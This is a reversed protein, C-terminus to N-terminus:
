RPWHFNAAALYRRHARLQWHAQLRLLPQSAAAHPLNAHPALVAVPVGAGRPPLNSEHM